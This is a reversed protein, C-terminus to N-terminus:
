RSDAEDADGARDASDDAADESVNDGPDDRAAEEHERALKRAEARAERNLQQIKAHAEEASMPEGAIYGLVMLDLLVSRPLDRMVALPEPLGDREDFLRQRHAEFRARLAGEREPDDLPDQELPDRAVDFLGNREPGPNSESHLLHHGDAYFSWAENPPGGQREVEGTWSLYARESRDERRLVNPGLGLLRPDIGVIGLLTSPFDILGVPERIRGRYRPDPHLMLWPVRTLNQHLNLAGHGVHAIGYEFFSEGHDSTIILVTKDLLKRAELEAVFARLQDDVFHISGDYLDMKKLPESGGSDYLEDYPPEPEYPSHVAYSHIFYFFRRDPARRDIGELARALKGPLPGPADLYSDFGRGFGYLHNVKGGDVWARTVFGHEHLVQPLTLVPKALAVGKSPSAHMVGHVLPHIGTFMTIHSPLTSGQPSIAWEFVLGREALEDLFPSTDRGYGYSGVHDARLTDLSIWILSLSSPDIREAQCGLQFGLTIWALACGLGRAARRTTAALRAGRPAIRRV